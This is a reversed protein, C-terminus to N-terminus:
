EEGNGYSSYDSEIWRNKEFQYNFFYVIAAFVIMFVCVLIVNDFSPTNWVVNVEMERATQDEAAKMPTLVLHYKGAAVGCINFDETQSGETWNEGDTYGHYYEIDKNANVEDSTNEDVLAVNLNAWSNDVPSQVTISLPASGGSLTFSPSTFEKGDFDSFALTQRLVQQQKQDKYIGYHTLCMLIAVVAFVLALNAFPLAFPQVIGVGIKPPMAFQPFAKGVERRSVHEGKYFRPGGFDEISIMYPPSIFEFMKIPVKPLEEDFFGQADSVRAEPKDYLKYERNEHQIHLRGDFEMTSEFEELFIFHGDSQSLYFFNGKADVLTYEEYYYHSYVRKTMSGTVILDRGKLKGKSGVPIRSQVYTKDYGTGLRFGQDSWFYSEGCHPCAFVLPQFPLDVATVTGCQVCKFEM